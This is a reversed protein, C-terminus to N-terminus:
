RKNGKDDTCVNYYADDFVLDCHLHGCWGAPIFDTMCDEVADDDPWEKCCDNMNSAGWPQIVDGPTCTLCILFVLVSLFLKM